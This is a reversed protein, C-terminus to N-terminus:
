DGQRRMMRLDIAIQKNAASKGLQSKGAWEPCGAFTGFIPITVPL